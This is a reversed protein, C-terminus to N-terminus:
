KGRSLTVGTAVGNIGVLVGLAAYSLWPTHSWVMIGEVLLVFGTAKWRDQVASASWQWVTKASFVLGGVVLLAIIRWAWASEIHPLEHHCLVFSGVPVFGGLLLGITTGLSNRRTFAERIQKVVGVKRPAAKRRRTTM